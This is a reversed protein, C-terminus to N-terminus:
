VKLLLAGSIADNKFSTTNPINKQKHKVDTMNIGIEIKYEQLSM